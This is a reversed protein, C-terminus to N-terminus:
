FILNKGFKSAKLECIHPVLYIKGVWIHIIFTRFHSFKIYLLTTQMVSVQCLHRLLLYYLYYIPPPRKCFVKITQCGHEPFNCLQPSNASVMEHQSGLFLHSSAHNSGPLCFFFKYFKEQSLRRCLPGTLVCKQVDKM